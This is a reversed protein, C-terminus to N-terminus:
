KRVQEVEIRVVTRDVGDQVEQQKLEISHRITLMPQKNINLWAEMFDLRDKFSAYNGSLVMKVTEGSGTLQGSFETQQKDDTSTNREGCWIASRPSSRTARRIRELMGRHMDSRPTDLVIIQVEQDLSLADLLDAQNDHVDVAYGRMALEVRYLNAFQDEPLRLIRARPQM